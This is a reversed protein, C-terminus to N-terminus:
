FQNTRCHRRKREDSTESAAGANGKVRDVTPESVIASSGWDEGKGAISRLEAIIEESPPNRGHEWESARSQSVGFRAALQAQTLGAQTRLQRLDLGTVPASGLTPKTDNEARLATVILHAPALILGTVDHMEVVIGVVEGNSTNIAPSGPFGILEDRTKLPKIIEAAFRGDSNIAIVGASLFIENDERGRGYGACIVEVPFSPVTAALRLPTLSVPRDLRVIAFDLDRNVHVLNIKQHSALQPFLLELPGDDSGIVHAATVARDESVLFCTGQARNGAIIRGIGSYRKDFREDSM